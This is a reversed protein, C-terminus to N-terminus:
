RRYNTREEEKCAQECDTEQERVSPREHRKDSRSVRRIPVSPLVDGLADYRSLRHLPCGVDEEETREDCSRCCEEGWVVKSSSVVESVAVRRLVVIVVVVVAIVPSVRGVWFAM